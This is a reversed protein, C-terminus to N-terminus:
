GVRKSRLNTVQTPLVGPIDQSEPMPMEQGPTIDEIPKPEMRESPPLVGRCRALFETRKRQDEDFREKHKLEEAAYRDLKNHITKVDIGLSQAAATKNNRFHAYANKIIQEEIADLTVGPSWVVSRIM